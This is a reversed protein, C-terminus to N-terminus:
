AASLQAFVCAALTRTSALNEPTLLSEDLWLGTSEEIALMLQTVAMSDLGSDVLGSDLSFSDDVSLLDDRLIEFIRQELSEITWM